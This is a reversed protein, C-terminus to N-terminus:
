KIQITQQLHIYNLNAKFDALEIKGSFYVKYVKGPLVDFYNDAFQGENEKVTLFINKVLQKSILSVYLGKEDKGTTLELEPKPLKLGKPSIFYHFKEAIVVGASNVLEIALVQEGKKLATTKLETSFYSQSHNAKIEVETSNTWYEKGSFDLVKLNLKLKQNELEDSVVFVDFSNQSEKVSILTNEFAKKAQYQLAKWRGYYDISSWSAVPWCDNIQWYLTGMTYPMERRHAEIAERIGQAQLVQGVYLFQEFDTPVKYYMEMYEKIRLNGIGSRQHSAMVESEINYDEPLTYKKVSEFEPFSQFGYESMFRSKYKQFDEFPHQGHWVGWYHMDGSINEYSALKGKGASPSSHWDQNAATYKEVTNPLIEHFVKEYDAWIQKRQEATYQQKWGWGSNEDYEGWAAEIENNGCWLAISAHNRLRKVNDTAEQEVSKLFSENGPYMSCAFMFDQWILIGNQDCLEYFLDNEYIGGGWVRLMNMNTNVADQVLKEYKEPSVRPLFVDQPIYNAGKMFVPVGNLEFYFSKGEGTEDNKQVLKISRLGIKKLDSQILEDGIWIQTEFDQLNAKGLGNSWWLEPKEISFDLEVQNEGVALSIEKEASLSNNVLIKVKAKTEAVAPISIQTNILAKEASVEKQAHYIDKMKATNWAQLVVPRWIGSTVIRPGWDWGYHYGAKRTFVSVRNTGMEGNESQDNIAPLGYGHAKLLELGKNTPSHLVIHLHNEGVKMFRKCEVTWERFMNDAQLILSDNLYVDAYTDLGKFNLEIVQKEFTQPSLDFTTKYEWDKKDIWQISKENLRYYPDEILKNDMLDTHVTGPVKAALWDNKDTQKFQWNDSIEMQQFSNDTSKSACAAFLLLSIFLFINRM